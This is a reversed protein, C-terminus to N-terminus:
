LFNIVESWATETTPIIESTGYGLAGKLRIIEGPKFYIVTTIRIRVGLSVYVNCACKFFFFFAHRRIIIKM